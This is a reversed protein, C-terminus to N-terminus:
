RPKASIWGCRLRRITADFVAIEVHADDRGVSNGNKTRGHNMPIEASM